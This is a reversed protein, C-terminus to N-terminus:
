GGRDTVMQGLFSPDTNALSPGMFIHLTGRWLKWCAYPEITAHALRLSIMLKGQASGQGSMLGHAAPRPLSALSSLPSRPTLWPSHPAAVFFIISVVITLHTLKWKVSVVRFSSNAPPEEERPSGDDACMGNAKVAIVSEEGGSDREHTSNRRVRVQGERGEMMLALRASLPM